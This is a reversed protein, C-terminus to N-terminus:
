SQPGYYATAQEPSIKPPASTNEAPAPSEAAAQAVTDPPTNGEEKM